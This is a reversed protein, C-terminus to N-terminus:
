KSPVRNYHYNTYYELLLGLFEYKFESFYKEFRLMYVHPKFINSALAFTYL